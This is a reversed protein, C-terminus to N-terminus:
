DKVCRVSYGSESYYYSLSTVWIEGGFDSISASYEETSCWFSTSTGLSVFGGIYHLYGAPLASFGSENSGNYYQWNYASKMKYGANDPGGLFDIIEIWEDNSPIHWGNPCINGTEVTKWNYIAGYKNAYDINNEYYCMAGSKFQYWEQLNDIVPIAEGTKYKTARLNERMWCQSGIQVTRYSNGDVDTITPIGPCPTGGALPDAWQAHLELNSNMKMLAMNPIIYETGNVNTNWHRFEYGPRTFTNATLRKEEGPLFPQPAMTGTGGNAFFTAYYYFVSPPVSDWQAYLTMNSTVTITQKDAYSVGTGNAMTNWGTFTFDERTFANARLAQAEGATFTQTEMTGTGGNSHFTVEFKEKKCGSLLLLFAICATFILKPNKM